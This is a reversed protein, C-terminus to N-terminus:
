RVREGRACADLLRQFRQRRTEDKKASVVYWTMLKRYGPPQAQFFEWARPQKQMLAAYPDPLTQPRQEYAYIGSQSTKRAAFAALGAPRMRKGKTLAEVRAINITSWTSGKRRPSFRNTFSVDDLKYRVGDIWGVCLAEDVAEPWTISKRGSDKRYFGVWLHDTTRHNAAFWKRLEAPTKFFRVNTPKPM